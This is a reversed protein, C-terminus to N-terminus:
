HMYSNVPIAVLWVRLYRCQINVWPVNGNYNGCHLGEVYGHMRGGLGGLGGWPVGHVLESPNLTLKKWAITAKGEM